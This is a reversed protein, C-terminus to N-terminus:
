GKKIIGIMESVLARQMIWLLTGYTLVGTIVLMSFMIWENSAHPALLARVGIVSSYMGLAPVVPKFLQRFYVSKSIELAVLARIQMILFTIPYAVLWALSVGVLGWQVGVLFAVPMIVSAIMLNVLSVDPRGKGALAPSAITSVMRIPIIAGLVQMPLIASLWKEGLFLTVIEPSVASIGWFVPFAFVSVVRIAKLFHSSFQAKDEQVRSFASFGVENLMGSIKQMPLTALQMAVSYFGLVEKGLLKGVIVMDAQSYFYWLVRDGTITGGFTLISKMGKLNFSPFIWYQMALNIGAVRVIVGALHGWVLSWVGFGQYALLITAISSSLMTLLDVFAKKKFEMRRNLIANPVILFSSVLFGSGLYYIMAELQPERFFMAILPACLCVVLFVTINVLLALGFVQSSVLKDIEKRQILAAGMGMENILALFGIIVMSQSMLGYDAPTLLRIVLITICWTIVQGLLKAIALWKLSSVVRKGIDM